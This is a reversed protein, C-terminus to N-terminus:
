SDPFHTNASEKLGLVGKVKAVSTNIGPLYFQWYRMVHNLSVLLM